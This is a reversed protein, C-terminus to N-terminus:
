LGEGQILYDLRGSMDFQFYFLAGIAILVLIFGIITWLPHIFKSALKAYQRKYYEVEDDAIRLGALGTVDSVMSVALGIDMPNTTVVEGNDDRYTVALPLPRGENYDISRVPRSMFSLLGRQNPYNLTTTCREDYLYSPSIGKGKLNSFEELAKLYKKKSPPLEIFGDDGVRALFDDKKGALTRVFVWVKGDVEKGTQYWIYTGSAFLFSIAGLITIIWVATSGDLM